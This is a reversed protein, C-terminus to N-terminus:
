VKKKLFKSQVHEKVKHFKMNGIVKELGKYLAFTLLANILGMMLISEMWNGWLYHLSFVGLVIFTSWTTIVGATLLFALAVMLPFNKKAREWEESFLVKLELMYAVLRLKLGVRFFLWALKVISELARSSKKTQM